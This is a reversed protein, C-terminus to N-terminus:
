PMPRRPLLRDTSSKMEKPLPMLMRLKVRSPLEM